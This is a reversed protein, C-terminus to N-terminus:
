RNSLFRAFALFSGAAILPTYNPSPLSEGEADTGAAANEAALARGVDQGGTKTRPFERGSPLLFGTAPMQRSTEGVEQAAAPNAGLYILADQLSTTPIAGYREGAYAANALAKAQVITNLSTLFGVGFLQTRTAGVFGYERQERENFNLAQPDVPHYPGIAGAGYLDTVVGWTYDQLALPWHGDDEPYLADVVEQTMISTPIQVIERSDTALSNWQPLIPYVAMMMSWSERLWDYCQELGMGGITPPTPAHFAGPDGSLGKSWLVWSKRTVYKGPDKPGGGTPSDEWGSLPATWYSNRDDFYETYTRIATQNKELWRLVKTFNKRRRNIELSVKQSDQVAGIIGSVLAVALGVIAEVM